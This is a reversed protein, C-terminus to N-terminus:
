DLSGLSRALQQRVALDVVPHLPVVQRVQVVHVAPHLLAEPDPAVRRVVQHAVPLDARPVVAVERHVAQHEVGLAGEVVVEAAEQSDAM